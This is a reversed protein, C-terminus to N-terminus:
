NRRAPPTPNNPNQISTQQVIFTVALSRLLENGDADLIVAQLTHVGRHVDPVRLTTSSTDLNRREGDLYIDLRHGAELSPEIALEVDLIGGLNWLTEQHTPRVIEFRLYRVPAGAERPPAPRASPMPRPSPTQAPFSQAGSLEIREAGEVPRDSYHTVGREDVWKWVPVASATGATLM